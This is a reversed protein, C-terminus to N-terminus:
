GLKNKNWKGGAIRTQNDASFVKISAMHFSATGSGISM